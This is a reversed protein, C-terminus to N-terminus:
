DYKIECVEEIRLKYHVCIKRIIDTRVPLDDWMKDLTSRAINTEKKIKARTKGQKACWVRLPEFSFIGEDSVKKNEQLTM